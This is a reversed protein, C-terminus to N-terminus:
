SSEQSSSRFSTSLVKPRLTKSPEEPLLGQPRLYLVLLVLAGTVIHPAIAQVQDITHQEL